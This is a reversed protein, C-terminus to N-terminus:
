KEKKTIQIAMNYENPTNINIFQTEDKFTCEKYNCQNILFNVKHINNELCNQVKKHVSKDFVGCLVHRNGVYDKAIIIEFNTKLSVDVLEKITELYILPTDICILFVKNNKIKKFIADLAVMPSYTNIDDLILKDKSDLFDFKDFKSSIYVDEFIRSLKKHQYEILSDCSEFELFSKDSGMRSSKGGSLIVACVTDIKKNKM